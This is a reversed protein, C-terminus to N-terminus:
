IPKLAHVKHSICRFKALLKLFRMLNVEISMAAIDCPNAQSSSTDIYRHEIQLSSRALGFLMTSCRIYSSFELTSQGSRMTLVHGSEISTCSHFRGLRMVAVMVSKVM